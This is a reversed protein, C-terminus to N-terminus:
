GRLSGTETYFYYDGLGKPSSSRFYSLRTCNTVRNQHPERIVFVSLARALSSLIHLVVIRDEISLNVSYRYPSYNNVGAYM